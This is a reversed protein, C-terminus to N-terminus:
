INKNTKKKNLMNLKSFFFVKKITSWRSFLHSYNESDRCKLFVYIFSNQEFKVTNWEFNWFIPNSWVRNVPCDTRHQFIAITETNCKLHISIDEKKLVMCPQPLYCRIGLKNAPYMNTATIVISVPLQRSWRSPRLQSILSWPVCRTAWRLFRSM